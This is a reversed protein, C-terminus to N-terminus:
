EIFTHSHTPSRTFFFPHSFHLLSFSFAFILNLGFFDYKKATFTAVRSKFQKSVFPNSQEAQHISTTTTAATYPHVQQQQRQEVNTPPIVPPVVITSTTPKSSITNLLSQIKSLTVDSSHPGHDTVNSVVM